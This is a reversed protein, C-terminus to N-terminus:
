RRGRSRLGSRPKRVEEISARFGNSGNFSAFTRGVTAFDGKFTVLLRASGRNTTLKPGFLGDLMRVDTRAISAAALHKRSRKDFEYCSEAEFQVLRLVNLCLRAAVCGLDLSGDSLRRM